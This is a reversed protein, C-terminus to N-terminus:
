SEPSAKRELELVSEALADVMMLRDRIATEIQHLVRMDADRQARLQKQVLDLLDMQRHLAHQTQQAVGRTQRGILKGVLRHYLAGGPIRSQSTVVGNLSLVETRLEGILHAIHDVEDEGRHVVELIAAFEAELQKELGFPYKGEQRRTEVRRRLEALVEESTTMVGENGAIPPESIIVVLLVTGITEEHCGAGM